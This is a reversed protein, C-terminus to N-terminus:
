TDKRKRGVAKKTKKKEHKVGKCQRAYPCAGCVPSLDARTLRPLRGPSERHMKEAAAEIRGAIEPSAERVGNSLQYLYERSTRAERALEKQEYSTALRMWQKILRIPETGKKRAAM